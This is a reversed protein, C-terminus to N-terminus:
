GSRTRGRWKGVSFEQWCTGYDNYKEMHEITRWTDYNEMCQETTRWTDYNETCQETTRWTDYNEIHSIKM